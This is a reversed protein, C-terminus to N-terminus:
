CLLFCTKFIESYRTAGKRSLTEELPWFGSAEGEPVQAVSYKWVGMRKNMKQTKWLLNLSM